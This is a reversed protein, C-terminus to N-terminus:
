RALRDCKNYNPTDFLTFRGFRDAAHARESIMLLLAANYTLNSFRWKDRIALTSLLIHPQYMSSTEHLVRRVPRAVILRLSPFENSTSFWTQTLDQSTIRDPGNSWHQGTIGLNQHSFVACWFQTSSDVTTFGARLKKAMPHIKFDIPMCYSSGHLGSQLGRLLRCFNPM